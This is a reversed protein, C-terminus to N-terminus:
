QRGARWEPGPSVFALMAKNGNTWWCSGKLANPKVRNKVKRGLFYGTPETGPTTFVSNVGDTYWKKLKSINAGIQAGANNFPLRGRNYSSDPPTECFCQAVGNNWWKHKKYQSSKNIKEIPTFVYGFNPALFGDFNKRVRISHNACNLWNMKDLAKVRRLVKSEWNKASVAESFIKRVQIIDPDGYNKRLRNVYSSSTFYTTWLDNPNCGNAYRVGYYHLDLEAWYLYYTYPIHINM